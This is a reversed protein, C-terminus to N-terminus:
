IVTEELDLVTELHRYRFQTSSKPGATPAMCKYPSRREATELSAWKTVKAWGQAQSSERIMSKNRRQCRPAM